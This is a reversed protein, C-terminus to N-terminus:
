PMREMGYLALVEQASLAREYIRVEDVAGRLYFEAEDCRQYCGGIQWQFGSTARGPEGRWPVSSVPLGNGYITGKDAEFVVVFHHWRSLGLNPQFFTPGAYDGIIGQGLSALYWPYVVQTEGAERNGTLVAYGNWVAPQYKKFLNGDGSWQGNPGDLPDLLYWLSITLPLPNIAQADSIVIDQMANFRYARDARGFRDATLTADRVTGHLDNGSDDNANGVFPYHALLGTAASFGTAGIVVEASDRYGGSTAVIYAIGYANATVAGDNGVSAVDALSTSWTVTADPILSGDPGRLTATLQGGGGLTTSIVSPSVILGAQGPQGNVVVRVAASAGRYSISITATGPRVAVVKGGSVTAFAPNSTGWRLSDMPLLAGSQHTAFAQIVLSDGVEMERTTTDVVTVRSGGFTVTVGLDAEVPILRLQLPPNMGGVLTITTDARHTVVGATDVATATFRRASGAPIILTDVATGDAGVPINVVTAPELGPGSVELVVARVTASTLLRLTVRAEGSAATPSSGDCSALVAAVLLGITSRFSRTVSLM